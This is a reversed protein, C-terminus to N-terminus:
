LPRIEMACGGDSALEIKIKDGASLTLTEKLLHNPNRDVDPADKYITVAYKGKDLFTLPIEITRAKSNNITGVYWENDKKRAITVYENVEACPVVTRDWTM